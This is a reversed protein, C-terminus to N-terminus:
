KFLKKGGLLMYAAAGLLLLVVVTNKNDAPPETTATGDATLKAGGAIARAAGSSKPYAMRLEAFNTSSSNTGDTAYIYWTYIGNPIM